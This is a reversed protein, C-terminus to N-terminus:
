QHNGHIQTCFSLSNLFVELGRNVFEFFFVRFRQKRFTICGQCKNINSLKISDADSTSKM